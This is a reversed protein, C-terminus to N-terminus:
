RFSHVKTRQATSLRVERIIENLSLIQDAVGLTIINQPMLPMPTENPDLVLVSGGTTHITGAGIAGDTNTGGLIIGIAKEGFAEAVSSMLPDASPRVFNEPPTNMLQFTRRDTRVRMHHDGPSFYIKGPDITTEENVLVVPVSVETALQTALTEIGYPTNHVVVFYSANMEATVSQLFQRLQETDSSGSCVAIGYFSNNVDNNVVSKPQRHETRAALTRHYARSLAAEFVDPSIPKEFFEDAGALLVERKISLASIVIIMPKPHVQEKIFQILKEGNMKPMMWDTVVVEFHDFAMATCAEEGNRVISFLHKAKNMMARFLLVSMPSDEVILVKMSGDM